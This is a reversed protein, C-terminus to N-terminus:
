ERENAFDILSQGLARLADRNMSVVATGDCYRYEVEMAYDDCDRSHEVLDVESWEDNFVSRRMM